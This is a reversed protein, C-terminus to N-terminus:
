HCLLGAKHRTKRQASYRLSVTFCVPLTVALLEPSYPRQREYRPTPVAVPGRGEIRRRSIHDSKLSLERAGVM